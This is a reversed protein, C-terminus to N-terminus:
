HTPSEVTIFQCEVTMSNYTSMLTYDNISLPDLEGHHITVNFRYAQKMLFYDLQNIFIILKDHNSFLFVILDILSLKTVSNSPNWPNLHSLSRFHLCGMSGSLSQGLTTQISPWRRLRHGLRSVVDPWSRTNSVLSKIFLTCKGTHIHNHVGWVRPIVSQSRVQTNPHPVVRPHSTFVPSTLFYLLLLRNRLQHITM